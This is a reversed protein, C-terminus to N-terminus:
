NHSHPKNMVKFQPQLGQITYATELPASVQINILELKYDPAVVTHLILKGGKSPQWHLNPEQLAQM